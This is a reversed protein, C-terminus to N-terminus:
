DALLFDALIINSVKFGQPTFCIRDGVKKLMGLSFNKEFVEGYVEFINKGFMDFFNKESIGETMRLGLFCFEEMLNKETMVEEVEFYIQRAFKKTLVTHM